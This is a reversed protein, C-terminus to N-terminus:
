SLGTSPLAADVIHSAELLIGLEDNIQSLIDSIMVAAGKTIALSTIDAFDLRDYYLTIRGVNPSAALPTLYLRTDKAAVPGNYTAPTGATFEAGVIPPKSNAVLDANYNAIIKDKMSINSM